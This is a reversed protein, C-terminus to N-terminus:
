RAGRRREIEAGTLMAAGGAILLGLNYPMGALALGLVVSVLAAAVHALTRLAPAVLAIFTIPVAFDLAFSPPIGRGVLAGILTGAYWMPAVPTVAGFYFAIKDAVPMDPAEEYRRVPLAYTQDVLFYAVLARQWLPADGLHPVLAASYMAMRLNVALASALVIIAPAQDQMLQVATFQAAGAIVLVTFGMVEVVSLGAETAVVGFLLGFPGVVLMFPLSGRLGAFYATRRAVSRPPVAQM